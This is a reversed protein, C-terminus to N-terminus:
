EQASLSQEARHQALEFLLQRARAALDDTIALRERDSEAADRGVRYKLKLQREHLAAEIQVLQERSIQLTIM